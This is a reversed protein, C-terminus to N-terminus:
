PRRRHQSGETRGRALYADLATRRIVRSRRGRIRIATLEGDAILEYITRPHVRLKEAAETIECVDEDRPLQTMYADLDERKVRQIARVKTSTLEGSALLDYVTRVGLQLKAAVERVTYYDPEATVPATHPM